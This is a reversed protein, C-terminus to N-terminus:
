LLMTDACRRLMVHPCFNVARTPLCLKHLLVRSKLVAGRDWAVQLLACRPTAAFGQVNIARMPQVVALQLHQQLFSCTTM